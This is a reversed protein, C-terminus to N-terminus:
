RARDGTARDGPRGAGDDAARNARGTPSTGAILGLFLDLLRV